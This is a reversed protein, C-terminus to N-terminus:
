PQSKVPTIIMVFGGANAIELVLETKNNVKEEIIEYKELHEFSEKTDRYIIAKYKKDNLFDLKLKYTTAKNFMGGVYWKEEKKVPLM